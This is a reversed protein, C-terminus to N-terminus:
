QLVAKVTYFRKEATAVAGIITYTKSTTTGVLTSFGGNPVPDSYVSFENAETVSNWRLIVDNGVTSITLDSIPYGEIVGGPTLDHGNLGPYDPAYRDARFVMNMYEGPHTPDSPISDGQNLPGNNTVPDVYRWVTQGVSTVEFLVGHVGDCILTNGNPQRQAGAIDPSYLAAPPTAVYTWTLSEPGFAMGATRHYFGASDVPPILEDVSSYNRGRGNNFVLLNGTGPSGSDIWQVDHQEFFKQNSANGIGYCRPNGWRYLLDGGHEYTGGSHGAAEATTTSHDIIWAESNGRVSLVIQDFAENYHISNMHNWFVSLNRGDGDCDILEPHASVTGFNAKTADFDQILHDWVHWEWVITGGNPRTPHIEIVYDPLMYGRTQVDPIRAPNFGAAICQAYTKKEVVLALINGNPLPRIDHHLTYNETSYDFAWVLSDDWSYEEIRGGEGGGTSLGGQVSCSRLLDGNPLLYVSQGPNHTSATWKNVVRGENNILYTETNQKPALLTYGPYAHATDNVFVGVTQTQAGALHCTAVLVLLCIVLTFLHKMM